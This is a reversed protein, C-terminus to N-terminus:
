RRAEPGTCAAIYIADTGNACSVCHEVGMLQWNEEFVEVEPGRVFSSNEITRAVADIEPKLSVYQTCTM